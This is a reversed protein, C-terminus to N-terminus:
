SLVVITKIGHLWLLSNLFHAKCFGLLVLFRSMNWIMIGNQVLRGTRRFVRKKLITWMRIGHLIVRLLSTCGVEYDLGELIISTFWDVWTQADKMNISDLWFLKYEPYKSSSHNLWPISQQSMLRMTIVANWKTTTQVIRYPFTLVVSHWLGDNFPLHLLANGNHSPSM